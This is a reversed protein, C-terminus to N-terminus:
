GQLQQVELPTTPQRFHDSGARVVLASFRRGLHSRINEAGNEKLEVEEQQGWDEQSLFMQESAPKKEMGELIGENPGRSAQSM